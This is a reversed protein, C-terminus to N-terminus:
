GPRARREPRAERRFAAWTFPQGVGGPTTHQARDAHVLDFADGLFAALAGISYRRVPLGSCHSPGEPAFTAVVVTSGPETAETLAARYQQRSPEDTLFHLVARDHWVRYTRGPRWSRLDAVLWNVGAADEGLRQQAARLGATSVDLVSVDTHGRALLADVLASAGGGVDLVSDAATVAAADLMRLSPGPRSQFWSCAEVGRSYADDWHQATSV